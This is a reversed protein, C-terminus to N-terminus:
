DEDESSSSDLLARTTGGITEGEDSDILDDESEDGAVPLALQIGLHKKSYFSRPNMMHDPIIIVFNFWFKPQEMVYSIYFMYGMVPNVGWEPTRAGGGAMTFLVWIDNIM